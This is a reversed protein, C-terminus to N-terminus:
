KKGSPFGAGGLGRLNSKTVEDIVQDATMSLAKKAAQYGGM